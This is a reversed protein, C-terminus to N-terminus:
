FSIWLCPILSRSETFANTSMRSLSLVGGTEFVAIRMKPNLPHLYAAVLKTDRSKTVITIVQDFSHCVKKPVVTTNTPVAFSVGSVFFVACAAMIIRLM